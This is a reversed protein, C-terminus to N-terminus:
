TLGIHLSEALRIRFGQLVGKRVGIRLAGLIGSVYSSKQARVSATEHYERHLTLTHLKDEANEPAPRGEQSARSQAEADPPGYAPPKLLPANALTRTMCKVVYIYIYTYICIYM